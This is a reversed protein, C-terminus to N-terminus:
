KTSAPGATGSTTNGSATTPHSAAEAEVLPAEVPVDPDERHILMRVQHGPRLLFQGQQQRNTVEAWVRYQGGAHVLPNVFVVQGEFPEIRGNELQVQVTVLRRVVEQPGVEHVRLFGEVRLRDMRVLRLLPEGAQVWEGRRKYIEVVLGPLPSQVKRRELALEAAEIDAAKIETQFRAVKQEREAQEVGLDGRDRALRLRRLEGEAIANAARRNSEEAASLEAAAVDAAAQSYRVDIDNTAQFEASAHEAVAGKYAAQVQRDDIQGILANESVLDGERVELRLLVGADQAPLTVQELLSVLCHDLVISDAAGPSEATSLRTTGGPQAASPLQLTQASPNIATTASPNTAAPHTGSPSTAQRDSGPPGVLFAAALMLQAALHQAALHM